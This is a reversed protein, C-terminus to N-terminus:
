GADVSGAHGRALGSSWGAAPRSPDRYLLVCHASADGPCSRFYAAAPHAHRGPLRLCRSAQLGRFDARASPVLAELALARGQRREISPGNRDAMAPRFHRPVQCPLPRLVRFWSRSSRGRDWQSRRDTAAPSQCRPTLVARDAAYESVHASLLRVGDSASSADAARLASWAPQISFAFRQRLRRRQRGSPLPRTLVYSRATARRACVNVRMGLVRLRTAPGLDGGEGGFQTLGQVTPLLWVPSRRRRWSEDHRCRRSSSRRDRRAALCRCVSWPARGSPDCRHVLGAPDRAVSLGLRRGPRSPHSRAHRGRLWDCTPAGAARRRLRRQEGTERGDMGRLDRRSESHRKILRVGRALVLDLVRAGREAHLLVRQPCRRHASPPHLGGWQARCLAAICRRARHRSHYNARAADVRCPVV